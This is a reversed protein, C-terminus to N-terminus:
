GQRDACPLSENETGNDGLRQSLLDSSRIGFNKYVTYVIDCCLRPPLEGREIKNLTWLGIQLRKAMAKKSLGYHKRLWSINHLFTDIM